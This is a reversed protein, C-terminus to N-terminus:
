PMTATGVCFRDNMSQDQILVAHIQHKIIGHRFLSTAIRDGAYSVDLPWNNSDTIPVLIEIYDLGSEDAKEFQGIIYDDISKVTKVNYNWVVNNEAFTKGDIVTNFVLALLALPLFAELFFYRKLLYTLSYISIVMVWIIWSIMVTNNQIYTPTVKACLLILYIITIVEAFVMKIINRYFRKDYIDAKNRRCICTSIAMIIIVIVTYKWAKNLNFSSEIFLNLTEVVPLNALTTGEAWKARAGQSEIIISILWALITIFDFIYIKVFKILAKIFSIKHKRIYDVLTFLLNVSLYSIFIISHFMNSNICLYIMVILLGSRLLKDKNWKYDNINDNLYM